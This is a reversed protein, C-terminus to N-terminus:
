NPKEWVETNRFFAYWGFWYALHGPLRNLRVQQSKLELAEESIQWENGQRDIILGASALAVFEYERRKYVRVTLKKADSLIVLNNDRFIDNLVQSNKLHKLPYAKSFGDIIIGYVWDKANLRKDRWAIPFMTDKSRFYGQYAGKPSYDREFGTNLDLVLTEPHQQIWKKWTTRVVYHRKLYIEKGVLPGVVPKGYLSSWLSNTQRDYMLKNSRYLLGSSGFTYIQGDIETEYPVAAGCLTCYSLSIAKGGIEINLMEHWNMIRLPYAHSEGNVTMGFVEDKDKLYSAEEAPIMHPNDLAPIGNKKVGGWIIEDWRITSEFMPNLFAAFPPDIKRYLFQKFAQYAPHVEFEQQGLWEMWRPWNKGYNQGTIKKLSKNLKNPYKVLYMADLFAPVVSIDNLEALWEGAEFQVASDQKLLELMRQLVKEYTPLEAEQAKVFNFGSLVLILLLSVPSIKCHQM